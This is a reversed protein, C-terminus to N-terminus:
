LTLLVSAANIFTLCAPFRPNCASPLPHIVASPDDGTWFRWSESSSSREGGLLRPRCSLSSSSSRDGGRLPRSEPLFSSLSKDGGRRVRRWSESLSPSSPSREGGRRLARSSLSSSREGGRLFLGFSVAASSASRDGGRFLPRSGSSLAPRGAARAATTTFPCSSGFGREPSIFASSIASSILAFFSRSRLFNSAIFASSLPRAACVTMRSAEPLRIASTSPWSAFRLWLFSSSSASTSRWISHPPPTLCALSLAFASSSMLRSRALGNARELFSGSSSLM